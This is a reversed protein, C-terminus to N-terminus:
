EFVLYCGYLAVVIAFSTLGYLFFGNFAPFLDMMTLVCSIFGLVAGVSMWIFGMQQRKDSLFKRFNRLQREVEEPGHGHLELETKVQEQSYRNRLWQEM